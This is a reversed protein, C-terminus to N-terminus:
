PFRVITAARNAGTDGGSLTSAWGYEGLCFFAVNPVSDANRYVTVETADEYQDAQNGSGSSRDDTTQSCGTLLATLAVATVIALKMGM